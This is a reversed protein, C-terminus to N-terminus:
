EMSDRAATLMDIIATLENKEIGEILLGEASLPNGGLPNNPVSTHLVLLDAPWKPTVAVGVHTSGAGMGWDGSYRAVSVGPHREVLHEIDSKHARKNQFFQTV